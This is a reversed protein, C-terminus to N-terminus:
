LAQGRPNPIMRAVGEVAANAAAVADSGRIEGSRPVEQRLVARPGTADSVSWVILKDAVEAAVVWTAGETVIRHGRARLARAMALELDLKTLGEGGTVTVQVPGSQVVTSAPTDPRAVAAVLRPSSDKLSAPLDLPKAPACGALCIAILPLATRYM